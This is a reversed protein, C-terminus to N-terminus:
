ALALPNVQVRVAPRRGGAISVLGVGAVQSLRQGLRNEVIDHVQTIPLTPSSIALTLVPTDAPNVKSYVPPMPLDNPLLNAAANIAAQVQQEAVDLTIDLTFRLTISSAGGSSVSSMQDLGPMQGFQRELPATISSTVVDPSAGPYLTTIQITPYDVQPLSAIPLLRYALAGVLLVAVMLLSTAVPRLIFLRSLNM